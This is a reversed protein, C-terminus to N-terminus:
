GKAEKKTTEVRWNRVAYAAADWLVLALEM